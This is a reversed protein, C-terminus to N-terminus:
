YQVGQGMGRLNDEAGSSLDAPRGGGATKNM